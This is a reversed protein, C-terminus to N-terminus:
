RNKLIEEAKKQEDFIWQQYETAQRNLESIIKRQMVQNTVKGFIQYLKSPIKVGVKETVQGKRPTKKCRLNYM